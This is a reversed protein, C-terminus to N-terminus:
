LTVRVINNQGNFFGFLRVLPLGGLSKGPVQQILNWTRKRYEGPECIKRIAWIAPRAQTM